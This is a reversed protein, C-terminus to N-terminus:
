LDNKNGFSKSIKKHFRKYENSLNKIIRNKTRLTKQKELHHLNITEKIYLDKDDLLINAFDVILILRPIDMQRPLKVEHECSENFIFCKGLEWEKKKTGVRIYLGGDDDRNDTKTLSPLILPCHMRLRNNSPGAHPRVHTGYLMLSLKIQGSKVILSPHEELWKSTLMKSLEPFRRLVETNEIGNKVFTLAYWNQGRSLGGSEFKWPFYNYFKKNNTNFKSNFLKEKSFTSTLIPLLDKQIPELIYSFYKEYIGDIFFIERYQKKMFKVITPLPDIPRCIPTKWIKLRVGREFIQQAEKKKGLWRLSDGYSRLILEHKNAYKIQPYVSADLLQNNANNKVNRNHRYDYALVSKEFYFCAQALAKEEEVITKQRHKLNKYKINALRRGAMSYVGGVHELSVFDYPVEKITQLLMPMATSVQKEQFKELAKVAKLNSEILNSNVGCCCFILLILISNQLTILMMKKQDFLVRHVTDV